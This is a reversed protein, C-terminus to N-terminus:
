VHLQGSALQEAGTAPRTAERQSRALHSGLADFLRAFDAIEEATKPISWDNSCAPMFPALYNAYAEVIADRHLVPKGLMDRVLEPLETIAGIGSVNPFITNPSDGLMIVPKGYLAGELGMTGQISVVLDCNRIFAQTDAFPEVIEVGPLSRIRDLQARSYNSVDSKHVKVLLKHSPPVCRALLEIVWIQNSFFPAWVDVTSEPQMHLGFFVYPNDPPRSVLSMNSLARRAKSADWYHQLVARVSYDTEGETFKLHEKQRARKLTAVTSALRRPLRLLKGVISLPKPEIYAMARIEQEEFKALSSEARSLLENRGPGAQLDIRASPILRDCFCALGPPIVSFHKCFWPIGLHKCVALGLSGHLCDYGGIVASPKLQSFEEIMRRALFTAYRLAEEYDIKSLVKDGMIMNHVTPVGECEFSALLAKDARPMQCHLSDRFFCVNETPLHSPWNQKTHSPHALHSFRNGSAEAVRNYFDGILTDTM